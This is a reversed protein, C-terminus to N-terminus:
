PKKLKIYLMYSRPHIVKNFIRSEAHHYTLRIKIIDDPLFDIPMYPNLFKRYDVLGKTEVFPVGKKGNVWYFELGGPFYIKEAQQSPQSLYLPYYYGEGNIGDNGYYYFASYMEKYAQMKANIQEIFNIRREDLADEQNILANWLHGTPSIENLHKPNDFSGGVMGIIGRILTDFQIDLGEVGAKMEELNSFLCNFGINGMIDRIISRVFDESITVDPIAKSIATEPTVNSKSFRLAPWSEPLMAFMTENNDSLDRDCVRYWFLGALQELNLLGVASADAVEFRGHDIRSLFEPDYPENSSLDLQIFDFTMSTGDFQVSM